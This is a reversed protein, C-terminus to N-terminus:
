KRVRVFYVAVVIIGIAAVVVIGITVLPLSQGVEITDYVEVNDLSWDDWTYFGFWGTTALDADNGQMVQTGNLYVTMQGSEVRTIAFHHLTGKTSEMHEGLYSAVIVKPQNDIYKEITYSLRVGGSGSAHVISLAYYEWGPIEPELPSMFYIKCIDLEEGWEGVERLYFKWTGVAVTSECYAMVAPAHNGNVGHLENDILQYSQM